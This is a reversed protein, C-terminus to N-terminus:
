GGCGGNGTGLSTTKERESEKEEMHGISASWHPRAYV